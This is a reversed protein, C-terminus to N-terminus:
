TDERDYRADPPTAFPGGPLEMVMMAAEAIREPDPGAMRAAAAISERVRERLDGVDPRSERQRAAGAPFGFRCYANWESQDGWTSADVRTTVRSTPWRREAEAEAEARALADRDTM